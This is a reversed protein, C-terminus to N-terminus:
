PIRGAAATLFNTSLPTRITPPTQPPYSSDTSMAGSAVPDPGRRCPGRELPAVFKCSAGVALPSVYRDLDRDVVLRRLWRLPEDLREYSLVFAGHRIPILLRAGLDEFAYLADLPSM